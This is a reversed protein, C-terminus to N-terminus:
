DNGLPIAVAKSRDGDFFVNIEDDTFKDPGKAWEYFRNSWYNKPIFEPFYLKGLRNGM